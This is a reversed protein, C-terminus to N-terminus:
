NASIFQMLAGGRLRYVAAGLLVGVILTALGVMLGMWFVDGAARGSLLQWFQWLVPASVALAGLLALAPGLSGWGASRQPQRFPSDGPPSVPYPALVSTVSSLGLGALFLCAVTGSLAGLLGWDDLLLITVPVAVALAPVAVLLIPVLRGLRDAIGSAGSAIHVWFATSDYAVDNHALWGFFLAMILVPVVVIIHEPVRVVMLPLVTLVGVIPVTLMNVVYRRDRLWYMLSRAAIAGFANSPLVAFWGMGARERVAGPRETSTLLHRALRHWALALVAATVVAILASAWAAGSDGSAAAFLAAPAAALPSLGLLDSAAAVSAPIPSGWEQSALFIAVPVAIVIVGLAFLATLERPRREPLLLAGLAMGIHAALLVSVLGFFAMLIALVPPAGHAVALIATCVAAAALCVAPLSIFSALALLAPLHRSDLGFVIFRRPDLPDRAGSLIPTLGFGLFVAATGLVVVVTAVPLPDERLSLIGHCVLVTAAILVLAKVATRVPQAGRLAALLLELRLRLLHAVM